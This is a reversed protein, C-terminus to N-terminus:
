EEIGMDDIITVGVNGSLEVKDKLLGWRKALLDLAKLRAQTNSDVTVINGKSTVVEETTEGRAIATLMELVEEASAIRNSRDKEMLESLRQKVKANSLLRSGSSEANRDTSEPYAQLYSQKANLTRVYEICFREHRENELKGM